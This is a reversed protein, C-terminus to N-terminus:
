SHFGTMDFDPVAPAQLRADTDLLPPDVSPKASRHRRQPSGLPSAAGLRHYLDQRVRLASRSIVKAAPVRVFAPETAPPVGATSFLPLWAWRPRRFGKLPTSLSQPSKQVGDPSAPEALEQRQLLM